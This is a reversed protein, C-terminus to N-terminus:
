KCCFHSFCGLIPNNKAKELRVQRSAAVGVLLFVSFSFFITIGLTTSVDKDIKADYVFLL